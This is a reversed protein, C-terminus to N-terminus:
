IFFLKIKSVIYQRNQHSLSLPRLEWYHRWSMWNLNNMSMENGKNISTLIFFNMTMTKDNDNKKDSSFTFGLYKVNDAYKLIQSDM